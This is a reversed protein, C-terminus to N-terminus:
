SDSKLLYIALCKDTTICLRKVFHCALSSLSQYHHYWLAGRIVVIGMLPLVVYRAAVIGVILSKQIAPGRLRLPAADGIMSKRLQPVLGVTFGVIQAKSQRTCSPLAAHDELHKSSLLPETCSVPESISSESSSTSVVYPRYYIEVAKSTERSSVRVINYVYSWLYIAGIQLGVVILM